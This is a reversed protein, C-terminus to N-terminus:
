SILATTQTLATTRSCRLSCPDGPRPARFRNAGGTSAGYPMGLFTNVGGRVIGRVSGAATEVVPDAM